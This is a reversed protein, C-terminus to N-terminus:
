SSTGQAAAPTAEPEKAQVKAGPHLKQHGETVVHEGAQLGELIEVTDALRVGVKVPRMQAQQEADIAYVFTLDGQHLLAMDPIVIAQSRVRVVLQINAFMGPRLRGDENPVWAKLLVMRTVPDVQSDIFYVEGIFPTDPYADVHLRVAQGVQMQGLFREPVRFEMKMPGPDILRTISTGRPIFQGVSLLRAGAIGDFPARIVADNLEATLRDVLAQNATWTANAQEAEQQAVARTELLTAYRQHTAEAMKLNAQAEALAALLKAQDLEALVQGAKVLQGEEFHIAEITGDTESKIDVQENAMLTGVADITDEVAQRQATAAVVPVVMEGWGGKSKKGCGAALVVLVCSMVIRSFRKM